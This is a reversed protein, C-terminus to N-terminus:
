ARSTARRGGTIRYVGVTLIPIVFVVVFGWTITGYGRAILDIIGFRALLAGLVLFGIALAPRAVNPLSGSREKVTAAIRENIAHIMGTGTEILTGFLVVQFLIQLWRSGLIELLMNAPVARDLVEPYQGSMAVFFLLGPIIAIPGALVGAGLSERRSRHSTLAFFVAPIVALNYGAYRIGGLLWNGQPPQSFGAIIDDGFAMFCMAFFVVYMAYLVMSWGTLFREIASSGRFVLVGVASMMGVVGLAYPLQFTEQLIAGSAAAIVALIILLQLVYLAEFLVWGRGLLRQFFSRYDFTANIRAFEFSVACVASWIATSVVIALLGGLPGHSLFFEALERGTGYGGAIVVSQFILGPLVYRKLTALTM